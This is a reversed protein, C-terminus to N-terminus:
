VDIGKPLRDAGWGLLHEGQRCAFRDTMGAVYAVAAHLTAPSEAVLGDHDPLLHPTKVYHEVLAQLLDIVAKAQTRSADRMYIREYNFQRFHALAEAVDAEMSIRGSRSSASVMAGIFARL